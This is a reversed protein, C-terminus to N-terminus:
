NKMFIIEVIKGEISSKLIYLGTELFQINVQQKPNEIKRILRGSLSHISLFRIPAKSTINIFDSSPNPYIQLEQDTTTGLVVEQFDLSITDQTTCGEETVANLVIEYFENDLFLSPASTSETLKGNIYWEHQAIENDSNVSLSVKNKNAVKEVTHNISVFFPITTIDVEIPHSPLGDDLGVIYVKALDIIELQTGKKILNTLSEDSYFGFYIGNQPRLIISQDSCKSVRSQIPIPSSNVQITRNLTVLCGENSEVELTIGTSGEVADISISSEGGFDVDNISWQLTSGSAVQSNLQLRFAADTTDIIVEFDIVVDYVSIQVASKTSEFGNFVGSVYVTSDQLFPGLEINKGSVPNDDDITAYVNLKDADANFLSITENPCILFDEFSPATPRKAVVLNKVRTNECSTNSVTLSIPYVGEQSFSISPNQISATTGQGFDWSWSIAGLSTDTFSVVNSSNDLYLTDTSMEFDSIETFLQVNLQFFESPYEGDINRTYFITDNTVNAPQFTSGTAILKQGMPDEYFEFLIGNRPDITIQNLDCIRFTELVKPTSQFIDLKEQASQLTNELNSISSSVALIINVYESKNAALTDILLAIMSSVDNGEGAKGASDIQNTTIFDYKMADTFEETINATNGNFSGMDLNSYHITGSGIIQTATYQTATEDVTFIYQKEDNYVSRNRTAANLNWDTYLGVLINSLDESSNNIIRYRLIMFDEDNWALNSQEIVVSHITDKFESYGYIDAGPHHSLKYNKRSKYDQSREGTSYNNIFNDSVSDASTAIFFGGHTLVKGFESQFGIGNQFSEDSFGLNGNGAITMFVNENGFDIYDPSTTFEIFQFDNYSGDMIDVRLKLDSNPAVEESLFVQLDLEQEQLSQMSGINLSSIPLGIEIGSSITILPSNVKALYNIINAKIKITDGFFLQNGISTTLEINELRLSKLGPEAVSRFVNLRGKGLKGDFESNNGIDYIDDASVRLREMVQRANLAPFQDKVLAAAGAVMPTSLSTGFGSGYTDNLRTSYIADGPAMLDISHNYTSLVSRNDNFDTAGISLVNDYSAPYFKAEPNEKNGDNGAAAVVVVDKELVAYNIIDQESQLPNKVSGWSLNLIEIGNDAAYIIAEYLGNSTNNSSKFGKLAAIKTNFGIGSIGISNDTSAGAIGAVEVGHGSLDANPDNDVDAFDYGWFDDVYGNEDNDIGDVPDDANTWLKTGLDKHDLDIGTDIIGITIDDDGRTVDWAEYAKINALYLQNEISPDSPVYLLKDKLIPEAYIVNEQKLLENCFDIPDQGKKLKIKCMGDLVSKRTSSSHHVVKVETNNKLQLSSGPKVKVIIWSESLQEKAFDVKRLMLKQSWASVCFISLIIFILKRM